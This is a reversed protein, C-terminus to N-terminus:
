VKFHRGNKKSTTVVESITPLNPTKVNTSNVTQLEFPNIVNGSNRVALQGNSDGNLTNLNINQSHSQMQNFRALNNYAFNWNPEFSGTVGFPYMGSLRAGHYNTNFGPVPVPTTGPMPHNVSSIAPQNMAFGPPPAIAPLPNSNASAFGNPIYPNSANWPFGFQGNFNFDMTQLLNLSYDNNNVLLIYLEYPKHQM